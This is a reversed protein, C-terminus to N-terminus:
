RTRSCKSLVHLQGHDVPCWKFWNTLASSGASTTTRSPLVINGEREFRQKLSKGHGAERGDLQWEYNSFPTSSNDAFLVM